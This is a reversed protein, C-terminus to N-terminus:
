KDILYCHKRFYALISIIIEMLNDIIWIIQKNFVSIIIIIIILILIYTHSEFLIYFIFYIM